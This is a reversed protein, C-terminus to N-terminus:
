DARNQPLAQKVPKIRIKGRVVRPINEAHIMYSMTFKNVAEFSNFVAFLIGCSTEPIHHVVHKISFEVESSETERITFGSVNGPKHVEPLTPHSLSSIDPFRGLMEIARRPSVPPYPDKPDEPFDGEPIIIIGDPFHLTVVANEVNNRKNTIVIELILRRSEKVRRLEERAVLAERYNARYEEREKEYRQSEDRSVQLMPNNMARAASAFVSTLSGIQSTLPTDATTQTPTPTIYPPYQENANQLAQEIAVHDVPASESVTLASQSGLIIRPHPTNWWRIFFFLIIGGFVTAMLAAFASWFWAPM